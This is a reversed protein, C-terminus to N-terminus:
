DNVSEMPANHVRSFKVPDYDVFRTPQDPLLKKALKNMDSPSTDPWRGTEIRKLLTEIAAASESPSFTCHGGAEVIVTRYLRKDAHSKRMKQEYGDIIQPPVAHDGTTHFRLVPIKPTGHVSRGPAAWFAIAAPDASIRPKSNLMALESHLDVGAARYLARVAKAYAPDGRHFLRRYDITDNWSLQRPTAPPVGGAHESMFRSQGGPQGAVTIATDFMAEQLAVLDRESPPPKTLSTWAPWQGITVALAIRARGAPTAQAETLAARWAQALPTVAALDTYNAIQLHPAILQQLVFWGDYMMNMLPVQEHACGAVVGDVRNYRTEAIGLAVFGGGSHGYEIVRNPRGHAGQFLDIVTMLNTIEQAPDYQFARQPHRNTGSVAYGQSLWYCTRASDRASYYDLDNILIGNWNSPRRMGWPTGDALTGITDAFSLQTCDTIAPPSPPIPPRPPLKPHKVPQKHGTDPKGGQEAFSHQSFSLALVVAAAGGVWRGFRPQADSRRTTLSGLYQM